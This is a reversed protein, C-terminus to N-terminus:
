GTPFIGAERLAAVIAGIASRAESDITAGGSPAAPAAPALWGGSYRHEQGTSRDLLRMGDRPTVFLWNGASRCALKGSQGAWEGTPATGTLWCQGDAPSSPPMNSEGEFAAHMLADILAFGENVFVEKQAQAAFLMPLAFRPSTGSFTIPDTM